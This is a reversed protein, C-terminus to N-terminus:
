INKSAMINDTIIPNGEATFTNLEKQPDSSCATVLAVCAVYFLNKM